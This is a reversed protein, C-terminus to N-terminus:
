RLVAPQPLHDEPSTEWPLESVLSPDMSMQPEPVMPTMVQQGMPSSGQQLSAISVNDQVPVSITDEQVSPITGYLVACSQGSGPGAPPCTENMPQAPGTPVSSPMMPDHMRSMMNGIPEEELPNGMHDVETTEQSSKEPKPPLAFRQSLKMSSPFPAEQLSRSGPLQSKERELGVWKQNYKERLQRFYELNHDVAAPSLEEKVLAYAKDKEGSFGYVIALNQRHRPSPDEKILAEFVAAAKQLDGEFVFSLGLNNRLDKHRPDVLLGLQYTKQAEGHRGLMDLCIGRANLTLIEQPAVELIANLYPLAKGPKEQTMLVKALDWQVELSGPLLSHAKELTDRAMEWNQTGKYVQALKFYLDAEEPKEQILEKLTRESAEFNGQLFSAEAM